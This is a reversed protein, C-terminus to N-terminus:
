YVMRVEDIMIQKGHVPQRNAKQAAQQERYVMHDIGTKAEEDNRSRHVALDIHRRIFNDKAVFFRRYYPSVYRTWWSVIAPPWKTTYIAAMRDGVETLGQQFEHLAAQPFVVDGHRGVALNSPDLREVHQIQRGLASDQFDGGFHFAVIVDLALTKLDALMSFPRGNAARAKSDWLEILKSVSSHIAPGAVNHLYQPALLDKLWGRSTRWGDGTKMNLHFGGFLPFRDIIYASRDFASRGILSERTKGVDAVLVVPKSLPGMLAQCIPSGHQELQKSCWKALGAPDNRLTLVDGWISKAAKPNYPIGPIPKPLLWRYFAYLGTLLVTVSCFTPVSGFLTATDISSM